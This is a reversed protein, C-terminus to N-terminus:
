PQRYQRVGEIVTHSDDAIMVFRYLIGIPNSLCLTGDIDDNACYNSQSKYVAIYLPYSYFFLAVEVCVSMYRPSHWSKM